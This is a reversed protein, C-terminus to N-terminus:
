EHEVKLEREMMLAVIDSPKRGEYIVSYVASTIPMELGLKKSEEHLIKCSNIGEVTRKNNALFDQADNLKGIEYGATFNRSHRSSCTVILDGIGTLGLYTRENAGVAKGFRVMEALGRTMLAARTNDGLGLGAIIGSALAIVNKTAVAYEAGIEDNHRYVRFYNNSFTNQVEIALTDDLSVACIATFMKIVVEEAHSPGILSVIGRIKDQDISKRIVNSLRDHTEVDFGKAVNIIIPKTNLNPAIDEKLSKKIFQSPLALIVMDTNNLAEKIDLTAKINKNLEVDKFYKSNKHNLQIDEVEEKVIGYIVAEHNNDSLVNALASSWSGSGILTIKM